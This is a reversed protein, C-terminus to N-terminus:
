TRDDDAPQDGRGGAAELRQLRRRLERVTDLLQPLRSLAAEQRLQQAHERAPYGSVTQRGPVSKTVGSQAALIAADGIRIHGVLGAQGGLKCGSGIETSGSVGVQACVITSAGIKVNHAIQVLNDIKTGRCVRTIGTTARDICANAGVEVDDELEVHGIHLVRHLTRGDSVFGFGDSGIVAGAHVVVRDGLVTGERLAVRAHLFCDAGIRTNRYIVTGPLITTRDGIEVGADVVVHAGIAVDRGLHVDDDLVATPHIGRAPEVWAAAAFHRLVISFAFAPDVVRVAPLDVPEHGDVLVASARSRGLAARYRRHALFTLDGANADHIGAVGTITPDADGVLTGGVLAAVESLHLCLPEVRPQRALAVTKNPRM